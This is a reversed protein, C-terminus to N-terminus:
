CKRSTEARNSADIVVVVVKQIVVHRHLLGGRPLHRLGGLIQLRIKLLGQGAHGRLVMLAGPATKYAM